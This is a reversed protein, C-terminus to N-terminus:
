EFAAAAEDTGGGSGNLARLVYEVVRQRSAAPLKALEREVARTLKRIVALERDVIDGKM